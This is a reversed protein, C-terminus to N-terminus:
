VVGRLPRHGKFEPVVNVIDEPLRWQKLPRGEALARLEREWLKRLLVVHGDSRGLHEQTRDRIAGQGNQTVDDQVRTMDIDRRERQVDDLRLKGALIDNVVGIDTVKGGQARYAARRERYRAAAEGIVPVLEVTLSLHSEDDIPVKWRLVESQAGAGERAATRTHRTAPMGRHVIKVEGRPFREYWSMGFETEEVRLEEQFYYVGKPLTPDRHTFPGHGPDNELENFFNCGREVVEWDLVGEGEMKPYRPLPPADGEGLYAFIGGLYEEVPYSKIRIRPPFSPEELPAEVCQGSGDYKWGHYRCRICDEEVWGTSLQTGRHACRFDVLHVQGSEGRFLTLQESMITVPVAWGPQLEDAAYIPHWFLRMYRGALTGPGTHDFDTYDAEGYSVKTAEDTTAVM